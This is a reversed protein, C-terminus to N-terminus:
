LSEVFLGGPLSVDCGSGEGESAVLDLRQEVCVHGRSDPVRAGVRDALCDIEALQPVFADRRGHDDVPPMGDVGVATSVPLNDVMGVISVAVARM